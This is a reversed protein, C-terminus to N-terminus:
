NPLPLKQRATALDRTVTEPVVLSGRGRGVSIHPKATGHFDSGGTVILGYKQALGVINRVGRGDHESHYAELGGLGCESLRGVLADLWEWPAHILMPHAIVPVAGVSVLLRVAEEPSFDEKPVYASKGEGLFREFAERISKVYGKKMMIAAIHPRGATSEAEAELEEPSVHLGLEDLKGLILMNRRGRAARLGQLRKEFAADDLPVYYGLVDVQGYETSCGLEIGPIFDMGASAAVAAAEKLGATSDHDTLAVCSVGARAAVEMLEAPGLSGDSATSHLHLDIIKKM